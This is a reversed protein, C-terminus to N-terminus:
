DNAPISTGTYQCVGLTEERASYAEQKAEHFLTLLPHEFITRLLDHECNGCEVGFASEQNTLTSQHRALGNSALKMLPHTSM